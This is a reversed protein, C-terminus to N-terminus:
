KKPVAKLIPKGEKMAVRFDVDKCKFKQKLIDTQKNITKALQDISIQKAAGAQSQAKVYSAHLQVLKDSYQPSEVERKTPKPAAPAVSRKQARLKDRKFTGEEIKRCIRTWHQELTVLRAQLQKLRFRQATNHTQETQLRRLRKKVADRERMPELKEVGAFYKEYALRVATIEKDLDDLERNELHGM